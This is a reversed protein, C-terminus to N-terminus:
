QPYNKRYPPDWHIPPQQLQYAIRQLKTPDLQTGARILLRYEHEGQDTFDTPFQAPDDKAPLDMQHLAYRPSRLMTLRASDASVDLGFIEPCIIGLETADASEIITWDHMPYEQGDLKRYQYGGPLGDCRAAIPQGTDVIMKLVAKQHAWFLDITLEIFPDADYLRARVRMLSQEYKALWTLTARVPGTEDLLTRKRAFEGLVEGTYTTIDHSWTDSLDDQVQWSLRTIRDHTLDHLEIGSIGPRVQWYTNSIINRTSKLDTEAESSTGPALRLIKLQRPKLQLPILLRRFDATPSEQDLVQCPIASGSEDDILEIESDKIAFFEHEIYGRYPVDHTNLVAAYALAKESLVVPGIKSSYRRLTRTIQDDAGARARGLQDFVDGYASKYCTGGQTDHFQNFLVDQWASELQCETTPETHEAFQTVVSDAQVLKHEARKISSKLRRIATYCGVAHYQLEGMVLPLKDRQDAIADFYAQPHSFILELGDFANKHELIFEIQRRTPGGGHDGVGYFCMVHGLSRGAHDVSLMIHDGLDDARICYPSALRHAIVQHDSDGAQWRFTEAPLAKEHPGPRMFVYSQYGGQALIRPLTGTHGFTDVNYGVTVDVGFNSQFYNKGLEIHKRFGFETPLNCDPQIHWGGVIRWRGQSVYQKARAFLEPNLSELTQHFWVDSRTFIFEPYEDLLNLASYATALAEDVGAQGSWLWVPDLHANGIMHVTLKSM